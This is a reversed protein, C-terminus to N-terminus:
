LWAPMTGLDKAAQALLADWKAKAPLKIEHSVLALSCCGVAMWYLHGSQAGGCNAIRINQWKSTIPMPQGEPIGRDKYQTASSIRSWPIKSNEWLFKKVDDKSWGLDALGASSGRAILVIGQAPTDWHYNYQGPVKMFCAMKYLTSEAVEQTTTSAGVQNVFSSYSNVSVLNTGAAFGQDVSLPAWGKPLGAEDEAWVPGGTLRGPTGYISMTGIGPIAGGMDQLILRMARGISSGAPYQSSPGLCGYGSNLRIQAAVPGNVIVGPAVGCTTANWGGLSTLPDLLAEVIGILVPMYEPRGGALALNVAVSEVTAIGGRPPIKGALGTGAAIVTDPALDTGTLMWKVSEDTPPMLPLGDGWNNRLALLNFNALAGKYDAGSVTAKQAPYVGKATVKPQWKTLGFVIKDINEAIPTLNSGPLFM